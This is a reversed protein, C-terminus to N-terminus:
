DKCKKLIHYAAHIIPYIKLKKMTIILKEKTSKEEKLNLEKLLFHFKHEFKKLDSKKFCAKHLYFGQLMVLFAYKYQQFLNEEILFNYTNSLIEPLDKWSVLNNSTISNSRKRYYYYPTNSSVILPQVKVAYKFWFEEDEHYLHNPFWINNKTIDDTKFIKNWATSTFSFINRETCYEVKDALDFYPNDLIEGTEDDFNEASFVGCDANNSKILDIMNQYCDLSLFDDSDVFTIYPTKTAKIGTNRAGGLGLNVKHKIYTIRSDKYAYELIIKESNDLTCDNVIIIKIDKLTQNVLSNLCERLYKQTNYVPVVISLM